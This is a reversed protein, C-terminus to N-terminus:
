HSFASWVNLLLDQQTAVHFLDLCGITIDRGKQLGPLFVLRNLICKCEQIKPFLLCGHVEHNIEIINELNWVKMILKLSKKCILPPACGRMRVQELGYYMGKIFVQFEDHRIRGAQLEIKMTLLIMFLFKDVEYLGRASYTYTLFTLYEIINNIRKNTIPSKTSKAMSLDFLGLFQKLATQYMINVM